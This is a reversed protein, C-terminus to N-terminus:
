EPEDIQKNLLYLLVTSVARQWRPGNGARSSRLELIAERLRSRDSRKPDPGVIVGTVVATRTSRLVIQWGDALTLNSISGYFPHDPGVLVEHPPTDDFPVPQTGGQGDNLTVGRVVYGIEVPTGNFTAAM